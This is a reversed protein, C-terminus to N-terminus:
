TAIRLMHTIYVSIIQIRLVFYNVSGADIILYIVSCIAATCITFANAAFFICSVYREHKPKEDSLVKMLREEFPTAHWNM